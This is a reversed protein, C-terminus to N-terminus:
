QMRAIVVAVCWLLTVILNLICISPRGKPNKDIIEESQIESTASSHARAQGEPVM